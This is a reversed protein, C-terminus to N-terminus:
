ENVFDKAPPESEISIFSPSTAQIIERDIVIEAVDKVNAGFAEYKRSISCALFLYPMLDNYKIWIKGDSGWDKGYSNLIQFAGGYKNNDYSIIVVAHGMDSNKDYSRPSWFDKGHSKVLSIPFEMGILIPNGSALESKIRNIVTFDSKDLDIIKPADIKFKQANSIDTYINPPYETCLVKETFPWYNPYEVDIIKPIGNDRLYDIAKYFLLGASCSYDNEFSNLYYIFFPSFSNRFIEKGDTIRKNKAYLITRCSALAYAVCMSTPGQDSVYYPTYRELSYKSPVFSRTTEVKQFSSDVYNKIEDNWLFGQSYLINVCFILLLKFIVHRM